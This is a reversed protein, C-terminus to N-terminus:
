EESKADKRAEKIKGRRIIEAHVFAASLIIFMSFYIWLLLYIISSLSGYIVDYNSRNSVINSIAFSLLILGASSITSAILTQWFKSENRSFAQYILIFVIELIIFAVIYVNVNRSINVIKDPLPIFDELFNLINKGFSILTVVLFILIIFIISAIFGLIRRIVFNMKSENHKYINNLSSVLMGAASSASWLLAIGSFSVVSINHDKVTQSIFNRLLTLVQEPIVVTLQPLAENIEHNLEPNILNFLSVTFIILPFLSFIFYYCYAAASRPIQLENFRNILNNLKYAWPHKIKYDDVKDTVKDTLDDKTTKLWNNDSM